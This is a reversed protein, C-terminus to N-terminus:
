LKIVGERVNLAITELILILFEFGREYDNGYDYNDLEKHCDACTASNTSEPTERADAASKVRAVTWLIARYTDDDLGLDKIAIHIQALDARRHDKVATM